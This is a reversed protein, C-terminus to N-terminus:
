FKKVSNRGRFTALPSQHMCVHSDIQAAAALMLCNLQRISNDLRIIDNLRLEINKLTEDTLQM